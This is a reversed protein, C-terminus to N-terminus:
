TLSFLSFHLLRHVLSLLLPVLVIAQTNESERPGEKIYYPPPVKGRWWPVLRRGLPSALAVVVL